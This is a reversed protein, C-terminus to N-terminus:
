LVTREGTRTDIQIEKGGEMRFIFNPRVHGPAIQDDAGVVVTAEDTEEALGLEAEFAACRALLEIQQNRCRIAFEEESIGRLPVFLGPTMESLDYGMQILQPIVHRDVDEPM